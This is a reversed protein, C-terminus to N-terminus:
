TTSTPSRRSLEAPLAGRGSLMIDEGGQNKRDMVGFYTFDIYSTDSPRARFQEASTGLRAALLVRSGCHCGHQPQDGLLGVRRRHHGKHFIAWLQPDPIWIEEGASPGSVSRVSFLFGSCRPHSLQQSLGHRQRGCRGCGQPRQLDLQPSATRLDHGLRRERHFSRPRDKEVIKGCLRVSQFLYSGHREGKMRVGITGVVDYFKGSEAACNYTGHSAEIHEDNPGGDLVMHGEGIAEGTDSNFTVEDAYLAYTGYHIEVHGAPQLDSWEKEQSDTASIRSM